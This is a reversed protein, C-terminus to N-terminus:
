STSDQQSLMIILCTIKEDYTAIWDM